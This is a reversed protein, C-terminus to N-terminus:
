TQSKKLPDDNTCHPNEELFVLVRLSSAVDLPSLFFGGAALSDVPTYVAHPIGPPM